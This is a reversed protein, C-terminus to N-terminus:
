LVVNLLIRVTRAEIEGVDYLTDGVDWVVERRRGTARAIKDFLMDLDLRLANGKDL